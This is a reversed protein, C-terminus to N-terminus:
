GLSDEVVVIVIDAYADAAVVVHISRELIDGVVVIVVDVDAAVVHISRELIDGGVVVDVVIVTFDSDM